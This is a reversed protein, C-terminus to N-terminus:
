ALRVTLWASFVSSSSFEPTPACATCRYTTEQSEFVTQLTIVVGHATALQALLQWNREVHHLLTADIDVRLSQERASIRRPLQVQPLCRMTRRVRIAFRIQIPM